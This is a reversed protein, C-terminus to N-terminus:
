FGDQDPYAARLAELRTQPAEPEERAKSRKEGAKDNAARQRLEKSRTMEDAVWQQLQNFRVETDEFRQNATRFGTRIWEDEYATAAVPKNRRFISM